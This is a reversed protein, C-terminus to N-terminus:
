SGFFCNLRVEVLSGKAVFFEYIAIAPIPVLSTVTICWGMVIAWRPYHYTEKNYTPEKYDFLSFMWIAQSAFSTICVEKM